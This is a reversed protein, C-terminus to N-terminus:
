RSAASVIAAIGMGGGICLAAIANRSDGRAIRWALHVLLRAGSAALPHGIAIAGGDTNMVPLGSAPALPLERLCALTQAAFAENIEIADFESLTRGTRELLKRIAHVPGLGMRQPDCGVTVGNQLEALIPWGHAHAVSSEALVAMAAGDNIGSSNGATVTGHADFVTRLQSLSEITVDPRPHEDAELEEV